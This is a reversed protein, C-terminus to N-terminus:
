SSPLGTAASLSMQNAQPGGRGGGAFPFYRQNIVRLSLSTRERVVKPLRRTKASGISRWPGVIRHVKLAVLKRTAAM